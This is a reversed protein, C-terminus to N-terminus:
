AARLLPMLLHTLLFPALCDVALCLAHDDASLPRAGRSAEASLGGADNLL